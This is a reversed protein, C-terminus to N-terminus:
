RFQKRYELPTKGTRQQFFRCFYSDERYNLYRTIGSIKENTESLLRKAEQLKLNTIYESPRITFYKNWNRLLTRRCFGFKMALEDMDIDDRFHANFYSAIERIKQEEPLIPHRKKKLEFLTEYLLEMCLLDIREATEPNHLTGKFACIRHILTLVPYTFDLEELVIDGSLGKSELFPMASAEYSFYFAKFRVDKTYQHIEGPRKIMFHPFRATYTKGDVQANLHETSGRIRYCFQMTSFSRPTGSDFWDGSGFTQVPPILGISRHIQDLWEVDHTKDNM